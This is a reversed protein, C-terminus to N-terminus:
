RGRSPPSSAGAGAGHDVGHAAVVLQAVGVHVAADVLRGVLRGLGVLARARGDGVEDVRWAAGVLDDERLVRGLRQVEDRPGPACRVQAAAVDHQHGLHLVVGVEHGPELQALRVADLNAEDGDAVVIAEVEGSEILEQRADLEDRDGGHGVHEARLVGHAGEGVGGVAGPGEDRDVGGLGDDVTGGVDDPEVDVEEGEGPVLHEPGGADAHQPGALRDELM